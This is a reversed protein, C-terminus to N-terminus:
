KLIQIKVTSGVTKTYIKLKMGFYKVNWLKTDWIIKNLDIIFRLIQIKLNLNELVGLECNTIKIGLSKTIASM